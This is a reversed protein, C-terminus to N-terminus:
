VYHLYNGSQFYKSYFIFLFFLSTYLLLDSTWNKASSKSKFTYFHFDFIFIVYVFLIRMCVQLYYVSLLDCELNAM